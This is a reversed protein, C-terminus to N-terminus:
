AAAATTARALERLAEIHPHAHPYDRLISVLVFDALERYHQRLQRRLGVLFAAEDGRGLRMISGTLMTEVESTYMVARQAEPIGLREQAALRTRALEYLDGAINAARVAGDTAVLGVIMDTTLPEPEVLGLEEASVEHRVLLTTCTWAQKHRWDPFLTAVANAVAGEVAAAPISEPAGGRCISWRGARATREPCVITVPQLARFKEELEDAPTTWLPETGWAGITLAAGQRFYYAATRALVGIQGAGQKRFFGANASLNFETWGLLGSDGCPAVPPDKWILVHDAM